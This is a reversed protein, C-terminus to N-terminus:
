HLCLLSAKIHSVALHDVPVETEGCKTQPECGDVCYPYPDGSQYKVRNTKCRRCYVFIVQEQIRVMFLLYVILVQVYQTKLCCFYATRRDTNYVILRLPNGFLLAFYPCHILKKVINIRVSNEKQHCLIYTYNIFYFFRSSCSSQNQSM